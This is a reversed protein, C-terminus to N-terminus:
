FGLFESGLGQPLTLGQMTIPQSYTQILSPTPSSGPKLSGIVSAAGVCIKSINSCVDNVPKWKYSRKAGKAEWQSQEVLTKYYGDAILGHEVMTKLMSMEADYVARESNAEYIKKVFPLLVEVQQANVKNLFEQSANLAEQSGMLEIRKGNVMITSNNVDIRSNSEKINQIMENVKQENVGIESIMKDLTKSNIKDIWPTRTRAEEALANYYNAEADSKAKRISFDKAQMVASFIESLSGSSGVPISSAPSSHPAAVSPSSGANVGGSGLSYPNVGFDKMQQLQASISQNKEYFETERAWQDEAMQQSFRQSELRESRAFANQEEQSSTLGSGTWKAFLNSVWQFPNMKQLWTAM